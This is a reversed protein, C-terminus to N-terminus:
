CLNRAGGPIKTVIHDSHDFAHNGGAYNGDLAYSAALEM